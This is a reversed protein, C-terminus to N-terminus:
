IIHVKNYRDLNFDTYINSLKSFLNNNIDLTPNSDLKNKIILDLTNLLKPINNYYYYYKVIIFRSLIIKHDDINNEITKKNINDLYKKYTNILLNLVVNVNFFNVINDYYLNNIDSKYRYKYPIYKNAYNHDVFHDMTSFIDIVRWGDNNKLDFIDFSLNVFKNLYDNLKKFYVSYKNIVTHNETIIDINIDDLDYMNIKNFNYNKCRLAIYHFITNGDTTKMNKFIDTYKIFNTSLINLGYDYLGLYPLIENINKIILKNNEINPNKILYDYYTIIDNYIYHILSNESIGIKNQKIYEKEEMESKSLMEGINYIIERDIYYKKFKRFYFDLRYIINLVPNINIVGLLNYKTIIFINKFKKIHIILDKIFEYYKVNLRHTYLNNYIKILENLYDYYNKNFEIYEDMEKSTINNKYQDILNIYKVQNQTMDHSLIYEIIYENYKNILLTYLKNYYLINTNPNIFNHNTLLDLLINIKVNFITYSFDNYMNLMKYFMIIFNTDSPVISIYKNTDKKILDNDFTYYSNKIVIGNSNCLEIFYDYVIYEFPYILKNNPTNILLKYVEKNQGLLKFLDNYINDEKYINNLTNINYLINNNYNFLQYLISPNNEYIKKIMDYNYNDMINKILIHPKSIIVNKILYDFLETIFPDQKYVTSIYKYVNSHIIINIKNKVLIDFFKKILDVNIKKNIIINNFEEPIYFTNISDINLYYKILIDFYEEFYDADINYYVTYNIFDYFKKTFNKVFLFSLPIISKFDITYTYYNDYVELKKNPTLIARDSSVNEYNIHAHNYSLLLIFRPTLNITCQIDEFNFSNIFEYKYLINTINPNNFTLLIDKLSFKNINHMVLNENYKPDIKYYGLVLNLIRIISIYGPRITYGSYKIESVNSLLEGNSNYINTNMAINKNNTFIFPLNETSNVQKTKSYVRYNDGSYYDLKQMIFTHRQLLKYFDLCTISTSDITNHKKFYEIIEPMTNTPLWNYNLKNTKDDYLLYNFLNLIMTEGCTSTKFSSPDIPDSLASPSYAFVKYKSGFLNNFITLKKDNFFGGLIKRHRKINHTLININFPILQKNANISIFTYLIYEVLLSDDILEVIKKMEITKTIIENIINSGDDNILKNIFNIQKNIETYSPNAKNAKNFLLNINFLINFYNYCNKIYKTINKKKLYEIIYERCKEDSPYVPKKSNGTYKKNMFIKFIIQIYGTYIFFNFINNINITPVYENNLNVFMLKLFEYLAKYKDSKFIKYQENEPKKKDNEYLNYFYLLKPLIIDSNNNFYLAFSYNIDYRTDFPVLKKSITNEPAKTVEYIQFNMDLIFYKKPEDHTILEYLTNGIKRYLNYPVNNYTQNIINFNNLYPIFKELNIKYKESKIAEILAQEKLPKIEKDFESILINIPSIKKLQAIYRDNTKIRKNYKDPTEADLKPLFINNIIADSNVYIKSTLKNYLDKYTLNQINTYIDASTKDKSINIVLNSNNTEDIKLKLFIIDIITKYKIPDLSFPVSNNLQITDNIYNFLKTDIQPQKDIKFVNKNLYGGILNSM